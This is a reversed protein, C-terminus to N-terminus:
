KCSAAESQSDMPATAPQHRVLPLVEAWKLRISGDPLVYHPLLHRRVLRATRGPPWNLRADIDDPFLFDTPM